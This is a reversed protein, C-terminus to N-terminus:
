PSAGSYRLYVWLWLPVLGGVAVFAILGLVVAMWDVEDIPSTEVATTAAEPVPEPRVAQEPVPTGMSALQGLNSLVRGLQDATRYRASPEKSLVKLV